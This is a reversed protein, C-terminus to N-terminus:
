SMLTEKHHVCGAKSEELKLKTKQVCKKMRKQNTPSERGSALHSQFLPGNYCM